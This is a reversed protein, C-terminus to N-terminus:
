FGLEEFTYTVTNGASVTITRDAVSIVVDPPLEVVHQATFRIMAAVVMRDFREKHNIIYYGM